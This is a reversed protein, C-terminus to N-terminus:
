QAIKRRNFSGVLPTAEFQFTEAFKCGSQVGRLELRAKLLDLYYNDNKVMQSKHLKAAKFLTRVDDTVDVSVHFFPHLFHSETYLLGKVTWASKPTSATRTAQRAVLSVRKHDPHYDDKARHTIVFEPKFSIIKERIIKISDREKLACMGDENKICEFTLGAIKCARKLENFRTKRKGSFCIIHSKGGLRANKILTGGPGFLEDDPHAFVGLLKTPLNVLGKNM